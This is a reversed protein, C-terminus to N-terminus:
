DSERVAEDHAPITERLRTMNNRLSDENETLIAISYGVANDAILKGNRDYILGRPAPLPIQRLRNDESQSLLQKNNVVQARFFASALFVTAVCVV